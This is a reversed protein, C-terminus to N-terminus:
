VIQWVHVLRHALRVQLAGQQLPQLSQLQGAAAKTQPIAAGILLLPEGGIRGIIQQCSFLGSIGHGFDHQTLGDVTQLAIEAVALIPFAPATGGFVAPQGILSVTGEHQRSYALRWKGGQAEDPLLLRIMGAGTQREQVERQRKGGHPILLSSGLNQSPRQCGRAAIVIQGIVTRGQAIPRQFKSQQALVLQGLIAPGLEAGLHGVGQGM